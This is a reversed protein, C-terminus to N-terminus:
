RNELRNFDLYGADVPNSSMYTKHISDSFRWFDKNTRRVGFDDLLRAYDQESKIRSFQDVFKDLESEEVAFFVNPYTGVVDDIVSLTQEAPVFQKEESFLHSVNTHARNRILSILRYNGDNLKLRLLSQEPITELLLGEVVSLRQLSTQYGTKVAIKPRTNIPDLAIVNEGVAERLLEFFEKKPNATKYNIGSAEFNRSNLANLYEEVQAESGRYWFDLQQKAYDNPFFKLFAAEGEMRLFDMYLRTLLQHGVNGYVDFGAVLLYHIRELLPYSIVWATKPTDGALGKIVSSSDFHRFVTLAANRNNGDGDWLHDLTLKEDVSMIKSFRKERAAIFKKEMASYKMWGTLPSLATSGQEAPLRLDIAERALFEGTSYKVESDPDTFVVWFHDNIVNLAVQGRCVPGKIYGMITFQAEDLMFRYRGNVPIDKFTVFPNSALEPDYSPLESVAYSPTLFLETWRDMRQQNFKYPMHRKALITKKVRQLRYFFEGGPDDFPRRSAIVKVAAGSPTISRVLKFFQRQEGIGSFSDSFYVNALFLHEFIYRSMLKQKLSSGNLFAEWHDVVIQNTKQFPYFYDVKAGHELWAELTVQQDNEIAPLGYPMGWLPKNKEFEDFEEVKSCEQKRNLSLDFSAPLLDGAPLPHATKLQLIRHMVSAQTNAEPTQVRDNLVPSFGQERWQQTSKADVSVGTSSGALLRAGNYVKEKNAGRDIGEFSTMKLQCPADYCGHCVACRSDVISKVDRYYEPVEQPDDSSSITVAPADISRDVVSQLGYIQDLHRKAIVACGAIFVVIIAFAIRRMFQKTM